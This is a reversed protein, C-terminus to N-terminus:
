LRTAVIQFAADGRKGREGGLDKRFLDERVLGRGGGSSGSGLKFLAEISTCLRVKAFVSEVVVQVALLVLLIDKRLLFGGTGADLLVIGSRNHARSEREAFGDLRRGGASGVLLRFGLEGPDHIAHFLGGQFVSVRNRAPGRARVM